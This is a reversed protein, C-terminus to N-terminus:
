AGPDSGTSAKIALALRATNRNLRRLVQKVEAPVSLANIADKAATFDELALDAAAQLQRDSIQQATTRIAPNHATIVAAIQARLSEANIGDKVHVTLQGTKDKSLGVLQDPLATRLEQDLLQFNVLPYQGMNLDTM